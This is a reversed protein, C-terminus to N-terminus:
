GGKVSSDGSSIKLFMRFPRLDKFKRGLKQESSVSADIEKPDEWTNEPWFFLVFHGRKGSIQDQLQQIRVWLSTELGRVHLAMGEKVADVPAIEPILSRGENWAGNVGSVGAVKIALNRKKKKKKKKKKYKVM